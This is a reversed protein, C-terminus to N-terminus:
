TCEFMESLHLFVSISGNEANASISTIGRAGLNIPLILAFADPVMTACLQYEIFILKGNEKELFVFCDLSLWTNEM